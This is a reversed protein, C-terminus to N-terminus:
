RISTKIEEEKRWHQNVRGNRWDRSDRGIVRGDDSALGKELFDFERERTLLGTSNSRTDTATGLCIYIYLHRQARPRYLLARGGGGMWGNSKWGDKLVKAGVGGVRGVREM